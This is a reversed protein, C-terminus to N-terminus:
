LRGDRWRSRSNRVKIERRVSLQFRNSAHSGLLLNFKGVESGEEKGFGKGFSEEIFVTKELVGLVDQRLKKKSSLVIADICVNKMKKLKALKEADPQTVGERVAIPPMDRTYLLIVRVM